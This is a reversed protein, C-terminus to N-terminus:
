CSYMHTYIYINGTTIMYKVHAMGNATLGLPSVNAPKAHLESGDWVYMEVLELSVKTNLDPRFITQRLICSVVIAFCWLRSGIHKKPLITQCLMCHVAIM